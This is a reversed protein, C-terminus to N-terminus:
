KLGGILSDMFSDVSYFGSKQQVLWHAALVSGLAFGSRNRANHTIEITDADSDLILSHIGPISGGRVAVVQLEEPLIARSPLQETLLKSKRPCHDLVQQALTLATGSPSDKKYKHHFENIMLDYEEINSVMQSAYAALRFLLHAGVSYNSGYLFTGGAELIQKQYQEKKNLWGTTGVVVPTKSEAYIAVNQDMGSPLAFEIIADAQKALELSLQTCDGVGALPDVKAIIEDGKKLAIQEIEKGMRGYGVLILKM